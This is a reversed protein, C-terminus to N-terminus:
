WIARDSKHCVFILGLAALRGSALLDAAALVFGDYTFCPLWCLLTIARQLGAYPAFLFVNGWGNMCKKPRRENYDTAM